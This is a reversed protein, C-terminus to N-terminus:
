GAEPASSTNTRRRSRLGAAVGVPVGPPEARAGLPVDGLVEVDAQVHHVLLQLAHRRRRAHERNARRRDRRDTIILETITPLDSAEEGVLVVPGDAEADVPVEIGSRTIM